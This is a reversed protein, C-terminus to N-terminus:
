LFDLESDRSGLQFLILRFALIVATMVFSMILSMGFAMFVSFIIQEKRNM